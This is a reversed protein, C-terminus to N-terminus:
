EVRVPLLHTTSIFHITSIFIGLRSLFSHLILLCSKKRNTKLLDLLDFMRACIGWFQKLLIAKCYCWWDNLIQAIILDFLLMEQTNTNHCWCRLVLWSRTRGSFCCCFTWLNLTIFIFYLLFIFNMMKPRM